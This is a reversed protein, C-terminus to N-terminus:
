GVARVYQKDHRILLPEIRDSREPVRM